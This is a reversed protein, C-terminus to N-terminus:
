ANTVNESFAYDIEGRDRAATLAKHIRSVWQQEVPVTYIDAVKVKAPAQAQVTGALMLAGAAAALKLLGRRASSPFLSNM